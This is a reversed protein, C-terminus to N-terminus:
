QEAKVAFVAIGVDALFLFLFVGSDTTQCHWTTMASSVTTGSRSSVTDFDILYLHKFRLPCPCRVYLRERASLWECLQLPVPQCYVSTAALVAYPRRESAGACECPLLFNLVFQRVIM